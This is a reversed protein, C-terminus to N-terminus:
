NEDYGPLTRVVPHSQWWYDNYELLVLNFLLHRTRDSGRGERAPSGDIERLIRYDDADLIRRYDTALAKVAKKAARSDFKDGSAFEFTYDLLRLLDRPHGGSHEVMLDLTEESDFLSSDARRYVVDRMTQYAEQIPSTSDKEHLKIMPLKFVHGFNENVINQRYILSIPSCYVFLSEILQLQNVDHIFFRESDEQNLRDTGDVLFLLKKGKNAETLAEESAVILQNFADAFESFSNKLVRRLEEKYTSNTKFSNTVSAFLKSVFPIGVEGKAGAKVEMAYEKTAEHKEVREDFWQM